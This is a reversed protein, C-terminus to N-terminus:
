NHLREAGPGFTVNTAGRRGKLYMNLEKQFATRDGLM